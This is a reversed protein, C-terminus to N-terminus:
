YPKGQDLVPMVSPDMSSEMFKPNLIKTAELIDPAYKRQCIVLGDKFQVDIGLFYYM